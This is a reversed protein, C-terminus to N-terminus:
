RRLPLMWIVGSGPVVLLHPVLEEDGVEHQRILTASIVVYGGAPDGGNWMVPLGNEIAAADFGEKNTWEFSGNPLTFAAQFPGIRSSGEGGAPVEFIVQDVGACCESPGAYHV